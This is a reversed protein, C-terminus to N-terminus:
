ESLVSAPNVGAARRAPLACASMAIACLVMAVAGIVLPDLAKVGYIENAVAKQMAIVGALGLLMGAAVLSFGERMVLGVIGAGTSGLAVRIGIERRRLTVLYALVGYIGVASLFLALAGFAVALTMSMRRSAMSLEEREVMTRADFVAVEPDIRAVAQRVADLLATAPVRTKIALTAGRDPNQAFPFYYAGVSTGAEALDKARVARVVGVITRWHTKPGPAMVEDPSDPKYMRHGVANGDPWFHKALVEDIVLVSPSDVQDRVDILRGRILKISMAEFYGPTVSLQSPSIVSEGPKMRYGEALIVSDSYDGGFPINSTAGAATVGPLARVSEVVRTTLARLEADGKYKARPASFSATLVNEASFGPDVALLNRFSTLLLGAATVLLFAFAIEAVVLGQRLRRTKTGATGTRSGDQLAGSLNVQFVNALPMLGTAVGVTM